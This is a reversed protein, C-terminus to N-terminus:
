STPRRSELASSAPSRPSTRARPSGTRVENAKADLKEDVSPKEELRRGGQRPSRRAPPRAAATVATVDYWVYGTRDRSSRITRSASTPRSRRRRALGGGPLDAIPKGDADKGTADVAPSRRRDEPRIQRRDRGADRRRRPCGRDVDHQNASRTPPASPPSRRSSTPRSRTSPRSWKRSSRRRRAPDGPRLQGDIVASVRAPPCARVRCRRGPRRDQRPHRPRSRRRGAEPEAGAVLRRLDQRRRAGRPRARRPAIRSCSRSSRASRPKTFRRRAPQRLAEQRRRRQGRRAQRYRRAVAHFLQDRSIGAGALGGQQGRFLGHPRRREARRCRGGARRDARPLSIDREETRYEHVAQMYADPAASRRRVGRRDAPARLSDRRDVVYQDETM